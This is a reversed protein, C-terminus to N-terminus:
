GYVRVVNAMTAGGLVFRGNKSVGVSVGFKEGDRGFLEGKSVLGTQDIDMILIQGVPVGNLMKNPAGVVIRKADATMSVAYGLNEEWSQGILDDGLHLWGSSDVNEYVCAFGSGEGNESFGPAGIVVRQHKNTGGLFVSFGFRDGSTGNSIAEGNLKWNGNEVTFIKVYGASESGERSPAGIALHRANPSLSVSWGFLDNTVEGNMPDGLPEWVSNQFEKYVYVRGSRTIDDAENYYPAGVALSSGDQSLSVSTGFLSGEAEGLFETVLDWTRLAENEDFIKAQGSNDGNKDSGLCGVAVRKGDTTMSVSFGCQDGASEGYIDWIPAYFGTLSDFEFIRASGRNRLDDKANRRAGIVVRSGDESVAVSFGAEDNPSEGVLDGGVQVWM